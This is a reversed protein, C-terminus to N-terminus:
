ISYKPNQRKHNVEISWSQSSNVSSKVKEPKPKRSKNVRGNGMDTNARKLRNEQSKQYIRVEIVDGLLRGLLKYAGGDGGKLVLAELYGKTVVKYRGSDGRLVRLGRQMCGCWLRGDNVLIKLVVVRDMDRTDSCLMRVGGMSGLINDEGAGASAGFGVSGGRALSM